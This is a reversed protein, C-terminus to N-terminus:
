KVMESVETGISERYREYEKVEFEEELLKRRRKYHNYLWKSRDIFDYVVVNKAIGEVKRLPRGIRQTLKISSKGGVALIVTNLLPIDIGEDFISTAIIVSIEGKLLKEIIDKREKKKLRGNIFISDKIMGNLKNGHEIKNVLILIKKDRNSLAIETIASNREENNVIYDEYADSYKEYWKKPNETLDHYYVAATALWGEEILKKRPQEYVIRGVAAEIKLDEGDDRYPTASLSMITANDCKMAIKYISKAAVRHCEDFIVLKYNKLMSIDKISQYTVAMSGEPLVANWQGRLDTTHVVVLADTNMQKIYEVAMRTKGAGCPLCVIGGNNKLLAEIAEKQYYRLKDDHYIIERFLNNTINFEYEDEPSYIKWQEFVEEVLERFGWPFFGKEKKYLKVVGWFPNKMYQTGQKMYQMKVNLASALKGEPIPLIYGWRGQKTIIYKTMKRM